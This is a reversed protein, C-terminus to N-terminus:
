MLVSEWKISLDSEANGLAPLGSATDIAQVSSALGLGATIRHGINIYRMMAGAFESYCELRRSDWRLSDERQWRSRDLLRTSVFSSLAGIAVGLLTLLQVSWSEM